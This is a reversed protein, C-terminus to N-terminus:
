GISKQIVKALREAQKEIESQDRGEIMVRALDETGSYRLLLRGASGLEDEIASAEKAVTPVETFPVKERVRVNRLVQPYRIFGEVLESLPKRYFRMAELVFLATMMGDGVLGKEPVIIHGSQEGGLESGSSVLEELVYKDGVSTRVLEVGLSALAIELGINSMVTAVVKGNKLRGHDLLYKALVWLTADGDVENGREDAFLVRDADGDFALGIDAKTEGVKQRVQELHLSGCNDNINRGDPSSFITEVRARATSFVVPALDSSAGNACDILVSIGALDLGPFSGLLHEVYDRRLEELRGGNPIPPAIADVIPAQGRGSAIDAEILREMAEDFKKGTPSFIKIGNDLYPNHSASIVIGADMKQDRTLFAVGPTTMVGSSECLAGASTAGGILAAEISAGSERTDRGFILRPPRGLQDALHKALSAGITAATAPDLPFEGARGRIGDTGFLRIPGTGNSSISM